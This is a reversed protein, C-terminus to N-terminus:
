NFFYAAEVDLVHCIRGMTSTHYNDQRMLQSVRSVDVGLAEALWEPSKGLEVLRQYIKNGIKSREKM